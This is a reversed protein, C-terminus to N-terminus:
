CSKSCSNRQKMPVHKTSNLCIGFLTYFDELWNKSFAHQIINFKNAVRYSYMLFILKKCQLHCGLPTCVEPTSRWRCCYCRRRRTCPRLRPLFATKSSSSSALVHTCRQPPASHSRLSDPLHLGTPHPTRPLPPGLWSSAGCFCSLMWWRGAVHALSPRRSTGSGQHRCDHPAPEWSLGVQLWLAPKYKM